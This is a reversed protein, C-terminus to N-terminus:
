SKPFWENGRGLPLCTLFAPWFLGTQAGYWISNDIQEGNIILGITTGNGIVLGGSVYTRLFPFRLVTSM